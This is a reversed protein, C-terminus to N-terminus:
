RGRMARRTPRPGRGHAARRRARGRRGDCGVAVAPGAEQGDFLVVPAGAAACRRIMAASPAASTALVGKAQYDLPAAVAPDIAATEAAATVVLALRGRRQLARCLAELAAQRDDIGAAAVGVIRSRGTILARALANPRYGFEAAVALVRARTAEAVAAGPTFARSVASQSVGVRRAVDTAAVM